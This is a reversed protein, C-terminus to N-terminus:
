RARRVRSYMRERNPRMEERHYWPIIEVRNGYNKRMDEMCKRCLGYTRDWPIANLYAGCCDCYEGSDIQMITTTSHRDSKNGLVVLPINRRHLIDDDLDSARTLPPKNWPYKGFVTSVWGPMVVRRHSQFMRNATLDINDRM